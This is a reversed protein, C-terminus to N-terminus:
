THASLQVRRRYYGWIGALVILLLGGALLWKWPYPSFGVPEMNGIPMFAAWYLPHGRHSEPADKIFQRKANALAESKLQGKQLNAYFDVMLNSTHKDDISWLTTIISQAGNYAFARALSIVGEGKWVPGTGTECASLVVMKLPWRQNYLEHVYLKYPMQLTDGTNSFAIFSYNPDSLDAKAHGAIHLYGARPIHQISNSRSAQEGTFYQGGCMQTIAQAEPINYLLTDITSRNNTLALLKLRSRDRYTPAYVQLGTNGPNEHVRSMEYQLTASFGFSITKDWLLYPLKRVDVDQDSNVASTLLADFPVYWLEGDPIIILHDASTIDLVPKVLHEYLANAKRFYADNREQLIDEKLTFAIESWRANWDKQLTIVQNRNPATIFIYAHQDHIFYEVLAQGPKLVEARLTPGSIINLQSRFRTYNPNAKELGAVVQDLRRKLQTQENALEQLRDLDKEESIQERKERLKRQIQQMKELTDPPANLNEDIRAKQIAEYLLVAKSKEALEFAKESFPGGLETALAIAHAYIAYSNELLFKKDEESSHYVRITDILDIALSITNWAGNLYQNDAQKQYIKFLARSKKDLATVLDKPSKIYNLKPNALIDTQDFDESLNILASQYEHVAPLLNGQEARADGLKIYSRAVQYGKEGGSNKQQVGIARRFYQAAERYDNKDLLVLGIQFYTKGLFPDNGPLHYSLSRKLIWEASDLRNQKRYVSALDHATTIYSGKTRWKDGSVDSLSDLRNLYRIYCQKASQLDGKAQYIPGLYKEIYNYSAKTNTKQAYLKEYHVSQFCYEIAADYNAKKSNNVAIYLYTHKLLELDEAELESRNLIEKEIASYFELSKDFNGLEYYYDGWLSNRQVSFTDPACKIDGTQTFMVKEAEKLFQASQDLRLQLGAYIAKELLAKSIIHCNGTKEGLAILSDMFQYARELDEAAIADAQKLYHEILLSDNPPSFASLPQQLFFICVVLYLERQRLQFFM